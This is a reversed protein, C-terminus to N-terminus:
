PVSLECLQDISKKRHVLFLPNHFDELKKLLGFLQNKEEVTLKGGILQSVKSMQEITQFFTARGKETLFVRKSRKDHEDDREGIIEHKLLRKIVELGTPKEHINKEILQMKTMSECTMLTYLYTFDENVLEPFGVLGKRILSKAYRNLFIILKGIETEVDNRGIMESHSSNEPQGTLYQQQNLWITFESLSTKRESNLSLQHTKFAEVLTSLLEFDM